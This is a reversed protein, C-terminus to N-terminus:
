AIQSSTALVEVVEIRIGILAPINKCCFRCFGRLQTRHQIRSGILHGSITTLRRLAREATLLHFLESRQAVQPLPLHIVPGIRSTHGM